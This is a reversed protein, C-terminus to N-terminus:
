KKCTWGERDKWGHSVDGYQTHSLATLSGPVCIMKVDQDIENKGNHITEFRTELHNIFTDM